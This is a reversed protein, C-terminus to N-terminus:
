GSEQNNKIEMEIEKWVESTKTTKFYRLVTSISIRESLEKNTLRGGKEKYYRILKHKIEDKTYQKRQRKFDSYGCLERLEMLSGFRIAFVDSNYIEDSEDLEKSTAPHGLNESFMMYMELLEEDTETVIDPIKAPQEINLERCMNEYNKFYKKLHFIFFPYERNLEYRTPVYGKNEVTRLYWEIFEKKTLRKVNPVIDIKELIEIWTLNFRKRFYSESPFGKKREKDFVRSKNTNIRELESKLEQLLEEDSMKSYKMDFFSIKREFGLQEIYELYTMGVVRRFASPSFLYPSEILEEFTLPRGYKEIMNDVEQILEEKTWRKRLVPLGAKELADNWSGFRIRIATNEKIERRKPPRGHEKYFEILLNLLYEDPYSARLIPLGAKKLANNWSGFRKAITDNQKIEQKKPTRGHKKYFTKLLDLLEEETYKYNKSKM